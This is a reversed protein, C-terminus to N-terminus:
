AGHEAGLNAISRSSSARAGDSRGRDAGVGVRTPNGHVEGFRAMDRFGFHRLM